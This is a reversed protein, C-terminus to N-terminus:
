LVEKGGKSYGLQNIPPAPYSIVLRVVVMLCSEGRLLWFVVVQVSLNGLKILKRLLLHGCYM